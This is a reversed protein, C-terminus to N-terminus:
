GVIFSFQAPPIYGPIAKCKGITVVSTAGDLANAEPLISRSLPPLNGGSPVQAKLLALTRLHQSVMKVVRKLQNSPMPAATRMCVTINNGTSRVTGHLEPPVSGKQRVCDVCQNIAKLYTLLETSSELEALRGLITSVNDHPNKYLVVTKCCWNGEHPGVSEFESV